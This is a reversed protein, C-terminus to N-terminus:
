GITLRRRGGNCGEFIINYKVTCSDLSIFFLRSLKILAVEFDNTIALPPSPCFTFKPARNAVACIAERESFCQYEM